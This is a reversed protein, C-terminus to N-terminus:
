TRSRVDMELMHALIDNQYEAADLRSLEGALRHQRQRAVEKVYDQATYTAPKIGLDFVETVGGAASVTLHNSNM